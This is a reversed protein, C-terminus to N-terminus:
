FPDSHNRNPPTSLQGEESEGRANIILVIFVLGVMLAFLRIPFLQTQLNALYFRFSCVSVLQCLCLCQVYSHLMRSQLAFMGM